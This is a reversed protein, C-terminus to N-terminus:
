WLREEVKYVKRWFAINGLEKNDLKEIGCLLRIIYRTEEYYEMFMNDAQVRICSDWIPEVEKYCLDYVYSKRYYNTVRAGKPFDHGSLNHYEKRFAKSSLSKAKNVYEKFKSNFEWTKYEYNQDCSDQFFVYGDLWSKIEPIGEFDGVICISKINSNYYIHYKFLKRLWERIEDEVEWRDQTEKYIERLKAFPLYYMNQKIIEKNNKKILNVFEELNKYVDKEECNKFSVDIRYSM